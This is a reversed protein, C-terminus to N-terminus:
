IQSIMCLLHLRSSSQTCMECRRLDLAELDSLAQCIMSRSLDGLLMTRLTDSLMSLRVMPLM